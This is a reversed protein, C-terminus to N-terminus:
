SAKCAKNLHNVQSARAKHSAFSARESVRSKLLKQPKTAFRCKKKNKIPTKQAHNKSFFLCRGGCFRSTSCSKRFVTRGKTIKFNTQCTGFKGLNTVDRFNHRWLYLIFRGFYLVFSKQDEREEERVILVITIILRQIAPFLHKILVPKFRHTNATRYM